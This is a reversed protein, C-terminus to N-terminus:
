SIKKINLMYPQLVEPIIITGEKTQYNELIAAITRDIALASGNLTAPLTTKNNEDKYRLKMRRAQFDGCLSVSSIERYCNQFPLWVELDFTKQAAFGLDGTCLEIIRYPLKLKELLQKVHFMLEDLAKMGNDLKTIKVIEVKHFQHLRIIGRTDKGASGAESRFCPTYATINIPLDLQSIIENKWMGVLPVEATPILYAQNELKFLDKEFKPLQGTARLTDASVILPPSIEQYNNNLNNELMFNVLARKLIAGQNKYIHYRTGSLKVGRKFDIINLNEGIEYHPKIPFDFQPINGWTSIEKNFSEDKGVPVSDLPINPINLLITQLEQDLKDTTIQYTKIKNKIDAIQAFCKKAGDQDNAKKYQGILKSIKNKEFSLNELNMLNSKWDQYIKPFNELINLNINRTLLKEKVTEFNNIVYNADLM